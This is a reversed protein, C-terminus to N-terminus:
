SGICPTPGAGRVSAVVGRVAMGGFRQHRQSDFTAIAEACVTLADTMSMCQELVLGPDRGDRLAQQAAQRTLGNRWYFDDDGTLRGQRDSEPALTAGADVGDASGAFRVGRTPERRSRGALLQRDEILGAEVLFRSEKGKTHLVVLRQQARTFAVYAVRREAELADVDHQMDELARKHPLQGEDVAFVIVTPWQRGKARHVTTIEIGRQDDRIALLASARDSLRRAYQAVTQGAAEKEADDLVEIDIQESGGFLREYEVFHADLGGTTRLARLFGAADGTFSTLRDLVDAAQTLRERQRGPAPLADVTRRFSGTSGLTAAAHEEQEYPFGRNPQRFVTLVDAPMAQSLDSFLRFYAEM